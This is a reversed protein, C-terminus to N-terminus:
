FNEWIKEKYQNIKEKMEDPTLEPNSIELLKDLTFKNVVMADRVVDQQEHSLKQRCYVKDIVIHPINSIIADAITKMTELDHNHGLLLKLEEKGFFMEDIMLDIFDIQEKTLDKKSYDKINKRM